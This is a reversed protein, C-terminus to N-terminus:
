KQYSKEIDSIKNKSISSVTIDGKQFHKVEIEFEDNMEGIYEFPRIGRGAESPDVSHFKISSGNYFKIKGNIKPVELKRERELFFPDILSNHYPIYELTATKDGGSVGFDVGLIHEMFVKASQKKSKSKGM